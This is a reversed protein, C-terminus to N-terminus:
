LFENGYSTIDAQAVPYEGSWDNSGGATFGYNVGGHFVYFNVSGNYKDFLIELNDHFEVCPFSKHTLKYRRYEASSSMRKSPNTGQEEELWLTFWGTWYEMAMVPKDPQINLLSTLISDPNEKFNATQLLGPLSGESGSSFYNDSTFYLCNLDNDVFAQRIFELYASSKPYFSNYENEIQLFM